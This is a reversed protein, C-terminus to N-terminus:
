RLAPGFVQGLRLVTYALLFGGYGYGGMGLHYGALLAGVVFALRRSQFIGGYVALHVVALIIVMVGIGPLGGFSKLWAAQKLFDANAKSDKTGWYTM